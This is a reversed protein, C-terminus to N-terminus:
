DSPAAPRKTKKSKVTGTRTPGHPASDVAGGFAFRHGEGGWYTAREVDGDAIARVLNRHVEIRHENHQERGVVDLLGSDLIDMVCNYLTSLVSNPTIAAIRRHLKWNVRVISVGQPATNVMEKMIQQLEAIDKKTRHRAAEAAAAPDLIDKMKLCEEVFSATGSLRLFMTGFRLAPSVAAAFIGGGVGPRVKVVSRSRLLRIAENLTGAAVGFRQQLEQKTGILDNPKITGSSVSQEIDRAIEDARSTELQFPM